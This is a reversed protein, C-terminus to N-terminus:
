LITTFMIHDLAWVVASRLIGYVISNGGINRGVAGSTDRQPITLMSSHSDMPPAVHSHTPLVEVGGYFRTQYIGGSSAGDSSRALYMSCTSQAGGNSSEYHGDIYNLAASVDSVMDKIGAVGIGERYLLLLAMVLLLLPIMDVVLSQWVVPVVVLILTWFGLFLSSSHDKKNRGFQYGGSHQISLCPHGPRGCIQKPASSNWWNTVAYIYPKHGLWGSGMSFIINMRDNTGGKLVDRMVLGQTSEDDDSQKV